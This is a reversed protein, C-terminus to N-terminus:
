VTESGEMETTFVKEDATLWGTDVYDGFSKDANNELVAIGHKYISTNGLFTIKTGTKM